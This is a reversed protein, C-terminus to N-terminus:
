SLSKSDSFPVYQKFRCITQFFLFDSKRTFICVTYQLNAQFDILLGLRYLFLDPKQLETMGVM